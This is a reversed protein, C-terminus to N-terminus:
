ISDLIKRWNPHSILPKFLKNEQLKNLAKFGNDLARQLFDFAQDFQGLQGYCATLFLNVNVKKLLHSTKILPNKNKQLALIQQYFSIAKRYNQYECINKWANVLLGDIKNYWGYIVPYKRMFKFGIKEATKLSPINNEWCHWGITYGKQTSYDVFASGTITAFGQKQFLDYTAIGVEIRKHNPSVYEGLCWAAITKDNALCFGYGYQLFMEKSQWFSIESFIDDFHELHEKNELFAEDIKLLEFNAKIRERWGVSLECDKQDFQYYLRNDKLPLYDAIMKLLVKEWERPAYHFTWQSLHESIGYEFVITELIAKLDKNQEENNTDDGLLYFRRVTDWFFAITPTTLDDVWIRGAHTREIIAYLASNYSMQGVLPLAKEFQDAVLEKM